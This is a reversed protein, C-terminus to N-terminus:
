AIATLRLPGVAELEAASPPRSEGDEDTCCLSADDHTEHVEGCKRCQWAQDPEPSEYCCESAAEDDDYAGGCEPCCFVPRPKTEDQQEMM